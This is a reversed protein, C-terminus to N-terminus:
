NRDILRKEQRGALKSQVVAGLAVPRSTTSAGASAPQRRATHRGSELGSLSLEFATSRLGAASTPRLCATSRLRRVTAPGSLRRATAPKPLRGATASGSVRRATPRSLWVGSTGSLRRAAASLRWIAPWDSPVRRQAGTWLRSSSAATRTAAATWLTAATGRHQRGFWSIATTGRQRLHLRNATPRFTQTTPNPISPPLFNM